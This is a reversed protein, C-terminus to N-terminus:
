LKEWTKGGNKSFCSSNRTNQWLPYGSLESVDFWEEPDSTLPTLNEFNILKNFLDITIAHSGGSHGQSAHAKVLSIVAEPIMGGYDADKSYLGALEMEREAHKILKSM